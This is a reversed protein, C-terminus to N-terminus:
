HWKVGLIWVLENALCGVKAIWDVAFSRMSLDLVGSELRRKYDDLPMHHCEKEVMEGLSEDGLLPFEMLFDGSNGHSQDEEPGNGGEEEEAAVVVDYDEFGLISNNDEPCFLRCFEVDFNPAM